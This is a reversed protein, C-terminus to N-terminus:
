RQLREESPGRSVTKPLDIHVYLPVQEQPILVPNTRIKFGPGGRVVLERLYKPADYGALNWFASGPPLDRKQKNTKKIRRMSGRAYWACLRSRSAMQSSASDPRGWQAKDVISLAGCM